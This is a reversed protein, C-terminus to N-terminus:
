PVSIVAHAPIANSLNKLMPGMMAEVMEKQSDLHKVYTTYQDETLIPKLLAKKTEFEAKWQNQWDVPTAGPQQPSLKQESHAFLATFTQDQQEPTLQLLSQIQFLESNAVLRAQNQREETKYEEYAAQQEPTLLNKIGAEPDQREQTLKAAEDQSMEGRLMKGTLEGAQTFQAALLERIRHAQAETLNLRTKLVAMKVDTQQKMMSTMLKSMAATTANSKGTGGFMALWPSDEAAASAAAAKTSVSTAPAVNEPEAAGSLRLQANEQELDRVRRQASTLARQLKAAPQDPLATATTGTAPTQAPSGPRIWCM